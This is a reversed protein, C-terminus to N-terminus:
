ASKSARSIRIVPTIRDTGDEIFFRSRENREYFTGVYPIEDNFAGYPLVIRTAFRVESIQM